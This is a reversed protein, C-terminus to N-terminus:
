WINVSVPVRQKDKHRRQFSADQEDSSLDRGPTYVASFSTLLHSFFHLDKHKPALNQFPLPLMPDQVAFVFTFVIHYKASNTGFMINCLNSGNVPDDTSFKFKYKICPSINLGNRIHLGLHQKIEKMAVPEFKGYIGGLGFCKSLVARVNEVLYVQFIIDQPLWKNEQQNKSTRRGM